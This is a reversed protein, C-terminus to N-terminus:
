ESTSGSGMSLRIDIKRGTTAAAGGFSKRRMAAAAGAANQISSQSNRRKHQMMKGLEDEDDEERRRKESLREPPPSVLSSSKDKDDQQTAQQQQQKMVADGNEDSEEDSHYDVLASLPGPGSTKQTKDEEDDSTNWYEEEMSDMSIHEMMRGNMQMPRRGGNEDESDMFLNEMNGHFGGRQSDNLRELERFIEMYHLAAVKERYNEVLYKILDKINEKRIYEFIDLCASSLLNDRPLTVLLVDLIPGLVQKEAVLKVYFEDPVHNVLHRFFRIAVPPTLLIIQFPPVNFKGLQLHKQKCSLLQAFRQAINHDRIFRKCMSHHQRAFFCLIENLYSFIGDAQVSFKLDTQGELDLLPKFLRVASRGYFDELVTAQQGELTNIQATPRPRPQLEGNMMKLSGETLQSAPITDLLVKLADSVQSKVGLDVEVLLLDILTDTLPPQKGLIQRFLTHRIMHPDHDIMSVLVDTAGVRVSVDHSRLGYNIVSLLGHTLLSSYFGQRAQVQLNKAIACCQQIFLVAQKKKVQVATGDPAFIAFLDRLFSSNSHLHQVIEVQNFFIMSNLVSFTPDDLIRALVVDKMYQLRYTQHIRRRINDDEIHVVEKFRSQNNLWQRHNAKHQPFDPDYELAGVVGLVCDDSVAHEIIGTDNLLLVIKMINCLRHLDQLSELDEAMDVLPILKGIYDEHMILKALADRGSASSSIVRISQELEPLTGLEAPPLQISTPVDMALDDSLSDDPGVLDGQLQRQM